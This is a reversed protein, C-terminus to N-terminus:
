QGSEAIKFLLERFHMGDEKLNQKAIITDITLGDALFTNLDTKDAGSLEINLADQIRQAKKDLNTKRPESLNAGPEDLFRDQNIWTTPHLPQFGNPDKRQRQTEYQILTVVGKKIQQATHGRKLAKQYAQWAGGKGIKSPLMSWLEEFDDSYISNTKKPAKAPAKTPITVMECLNADMMKKLFDTTEKVQEPTMKDRNFKFSNM